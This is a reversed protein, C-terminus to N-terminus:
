FLSEQRKDSASKNKRKGGPESGEAIVQQVGDAFEIQLAMGASVSASSMVVNGADDRVLAFGRALVKKYHYSELLRSLSQIRQEEMAIRQRIPSPQLRGGAVELQQLKHQLIRPATGM